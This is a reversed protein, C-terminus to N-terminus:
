THKFYVCIGTINDFESTEDNDDLEPMDYLEQMKNYSCILPKLTMPLSPLYLLINNRIYLERIFLRPNSKIYDIDFVDM